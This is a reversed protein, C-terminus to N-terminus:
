PFGAQPTGAAAIRPTSDGPTLSPSREQLAAAALAGALAAFTAANAPIQWNFDVLNHFCCALLAGLMGASVAGARGARVARRLLIGLLLAVLVGGLLGLDLVAQLYENHAEGYWHYRSLTQYRGYSTGFTNFGAGFIPFDPLMRVADEWLVMRSQQLGGRRAFADRIGALDVWFVGLGVVAAVILLLIFRRRRLVAILSLMALAFAMVGGRSGSALLGVVLVVGVASRRLAANGARGGLAVWAPRRQKWEAATAAIADWAFGIAVPTAMALYGAFHNRSVYPGFVGWDWQPKWLGYIRTPEPSAAQVLALVTM